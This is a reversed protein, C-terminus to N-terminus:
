GTTMRCREVMAPDTLIAALEPDEKARAIRKMMYRRLNIKFAFSSLPEDYKPKL